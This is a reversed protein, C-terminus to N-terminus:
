HPYQAQNLITELYRKFRMKEYQHVCFTIIFVLLGFSVFVLQPIGVNAQDIGILLAFFWAICALLLMVICMFGRKLQIDLTGDDLSYSGSIKLTSLVMGSLRNQLLFSSYMGDVKGNAIEGEFRFGDENDRLRKLVKQLVVKDEQLRLTQISM